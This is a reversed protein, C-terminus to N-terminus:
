YAIMEFVSEVTGFMCKYFWLIFEMSKSEHRPCEGGVNMSWVV